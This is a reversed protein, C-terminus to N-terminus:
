VVASIWKKSSVFLGIPPDHECMSASIILHQHYLDNQTLPPFDKTITADGSTLLQTFMEDVVGNVKDEDIYGKTM